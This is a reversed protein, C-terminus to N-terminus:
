FLYEGIDELCFYTVTYVFESGADTIKAERTLIEAGSFLEKEFVSLNETFIKLAHQENLVASYQNIEIYETVIMKAPLEVAFLEIPRQYTIEDYYRFTNKGASAPISVDGIVLTKHTVTNGTEERFIHNKSLTFIYTNETYGMICADVNGTWSSDEALENIVVLDQGKQVVDGPEVLGVGGMVTVSKVQADCRAVIRTVGPTDGIDVKDKVEVTAVGFSFNIAIWSLRSNDLLVGYEVQRIDVGSQLMGARLGNAELSAILTEKPITSSGEIRITFVTGGLLFVVLIFAALGVALAAKQEIRRYPFYIGHKKQTRMKCQSKKAIKRLRKYDAIYVCFFATNGKVRANFVRVGEKMALDFFRNFLGGDCRVDVYGMLYRILKKVLM